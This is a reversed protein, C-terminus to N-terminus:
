VKFRKTGKAFFTKLIWVQLLAMGVIVSCELVTFWFIRSQTSLVTSYNRHHRTHFYKQTRAISSLLGNIKYSSEELTSTHEKLPQQQGSLVRRPESEVMIDFDLLKDSMSADNEFCFSYEGIKNATLIYDGQAEKEGDLLVKDDPDMVVYDIEFSGGSQVAFYFGIKEGVKDVDAYYCSRESSALIATLASGAAQSASVLLVALTAQVRGARM